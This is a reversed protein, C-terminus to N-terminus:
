QNKSSQGTTFWGPNQVADMYRGKSLMEIEKQADIKKHMTLNVVECVAAVSASIHHMVYAIRLDGPIFSIQIHKNDTILAIQEATTISFTVGPPLMKSNIQSVQMYPTVISLSLFGYQNNFNIVSM